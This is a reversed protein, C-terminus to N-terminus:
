GSRDLWGAIWRDMVQRTRPPGGRRGHAAGEGTGVVSIAIFM